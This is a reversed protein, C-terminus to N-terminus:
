LAIHNPLMTSVAREAIVGHADTIPQEPVVDHLPEHLSLPAINRARAMGRGASRGNARTSDREDRAHVIQVDGSGCQRSKDAVSIQRQSRVADIVRDLHVSEVTLSKSSECEL